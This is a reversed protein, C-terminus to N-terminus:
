LLLIASNTPIYIPAAVISAAHLSRLFNFISIGHSGAITSRFFVFVNIQFPIHVGTNM